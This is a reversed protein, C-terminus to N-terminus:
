DLEMLAFRAEASDLSQDITVVPEPTPPQPSSPVQVAIAASARRWEGFERALADYRANAQELARESIRCKAEASVQKISAERCEAVVDDARKASAASVAEARRLVAVSEEAIQLARAENQRSRWLATIQGVCGKHLVETEMVVLRSQSAIPLGCAACTAAM